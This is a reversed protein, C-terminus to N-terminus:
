RASRAGWSRPRCTSTPASWSRRGAGACGSPRGHHGVRPTNAHVVEAEFHRAARALAGGGAGLQRMGAPTQIPHLRLSADVAPISLREVGAADIERALRGEDPCAIAIEHDARLGAVLRMLSVEGGSWAGTHNALLIRM